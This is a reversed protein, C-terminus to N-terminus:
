RRKLRALVRDLAKRAVDVAGLLPEAKTRDAAAQGKALSERFRGVAPTVDRGRALAAEIAAGAGESSAKAYADALAKQHSDNGRRALSELERVREDASELFAQARREADKAGGLRLLERTMKLVHGRDLPTTVGDGQLAAALLLAIM